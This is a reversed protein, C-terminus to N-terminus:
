PGAARSRVERRALLRAVEAVEDVAQDLLALLDGRRGADLQVLVRPLHVDEGRLAAAPVVRRHELVDLGAARGLDLVDGAREDPLGLPEAHRHRQM